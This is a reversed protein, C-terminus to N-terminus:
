CYRRQRLGHLRKRQGVLWGDGDQWKLIHAAIGLLIVERVPHHFFDNRGERSVLLKEDDGSVGAECELAFSDVDLLHSPIQADPIHKLPATPFCTVADPYRPLQNIRSRARM